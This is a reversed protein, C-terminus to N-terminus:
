VNVLQFDQHSITPTEWIKLTYQLLQQGM